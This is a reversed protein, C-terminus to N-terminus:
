PIYKQSKILPDQTRIGFSGGNFAIFGTNEPKENDLNIM